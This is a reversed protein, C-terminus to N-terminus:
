TGGARRAIRLQQDGVTIRSKTNIQVSTDRALAKGDAKTGNTSGLDRIYLRRDRLQMHVHQRSLNGNTVRLDAGAGRGIVFGNQLQAATVKARQDGIQLTLMAKLAVKLFPIPGTAAGPWMWLAGGLAAALMLGGGTWIQWGPGASCMRAVQPEVGSSLLFSAMARSSSAWGTGNSKRSPIATNLGAVSGCRTVLPGGSNGPNLAADHQLIEVNTGHATWSSDSRRGVIGRTLVAKFGDLSNSRNMEVDAVSPFGLAFVDEGRDLPRPALPLIVPQFDTGDMPTLRLLAMGYEASANVVKAEFLELAAQTGFFVAITDVGEIVHHNTLFLTNGDKARGVAYGSGGGVFNTFRDFLIVRGVSADLARVMDQTGQAIARCPALATALTLVCVLASIAKLM